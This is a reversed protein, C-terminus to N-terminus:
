NVLRLVLMFSVSVMGALYARVLGLLRAGWDKLGVVGMMWM